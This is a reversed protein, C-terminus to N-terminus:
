SISKDIFDLYKSPLFKMHLLKYSITFAHPTRNLLRFTGKYVM